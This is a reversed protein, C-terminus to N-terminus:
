ERLWEVWAQFAAPHTAGIVARRWLDARDFDDHEPTCMFGGAESLILRGAAYDWLMQGGHLYLDLRGAALFCWEIASSGFNRQSYYPPRLALREGLTKPVRKLDVGAVCEALAGQPARLPLRMGNLYAGRGREAYFAEDTAPNFVCALQPQTDRYYAVSTGFFPIGNIFNTTGDIPDIVWLGAGAQSWLGRQASEPMEEGLVPCDMIERLREELWRQAAVDVSTLLSGDAKRERLATMYRPMIIERGLARLREVLALCQVSVHPPNM